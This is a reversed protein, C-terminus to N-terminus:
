FIVWSVLSYPRGIMGWFSSKESLSSGYFKLVEEGFWLLFSSPNFKTDKPYSKVIWDFPLKKFDFLIM